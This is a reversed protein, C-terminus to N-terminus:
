RSHWCFIVINKLRRRVKGVNQLQHLKKVSFLIINHNRHNEHNLQQETTTFMQLGAVHRNRSNNAATTSSSREVFNVLLVMQLQSPGNRSRQLKELCLKWYAWSDFSGCQKNLTINKIIVALFDATPELDLLPSLVPAENKIEKVPTAASIWGDSRNHPWTNSKGWTGPPPRLPTSATSREPDKLCTLGSTLRKIKMSFM